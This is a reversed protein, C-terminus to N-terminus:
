GNTTPWRWAMVAVALTMAMEVSGFFLYYPQAGGIMTTGQIATYLLGIAVNAWRAVVARLILSLMVMLAPIAMMVSVGLLVGPTAEGLPGMLGKNMADLNGRVYLGFYDAYLYCLMISTWLGALKIRISVPAADQPNRPPTVNASM